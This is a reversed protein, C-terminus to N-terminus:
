VFTGKVTDRRITGQFRLSVAEAGAGLTFEFSLKDAALFAERLPVEEGDPAVLTGSIVDGSRTLKLTSEFEDGDGTDVVLTYTRSTAPIPPPAPPAFDGPPYVRAAKAEGKKLLELVAKVCEHKLWEKELREAAPKPVLEIGPGAEAQVVNGKQNFVAWYVTRAHRRANDRIKNADLGKTRNGNVRLLDAREFTLTLVNWDKGFLAM